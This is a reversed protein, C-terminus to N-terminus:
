WGRRITNAIFEREEDGVWWGCPIHLMTSYFRDLGPLPRRSSAFVGHLDNRRHVTSSAIGHAALHRSLDDRREAFVTYFWYSPQADEDWAPLQLGTIGKLASDFYRGNDVHRAVVPKVHELQVLGIAANV